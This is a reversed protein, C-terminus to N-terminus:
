RQMSSDAEKVNAKTMDTLPKISESSEEKVESAFEKLASKVEPNKEVLQKIAAKSSSDKPQSRKYLKPQIKEMSKGQTQQLGLAEYLSKTEHQKGVMVETHAYIEEDTVGNRKLIKASGDSSVSIKMQCKKGEVEWALDMDYTGDLIEYSRIEQEDEDYCTSLRVGRTKNKDSKCMTIADIGYEKSKSAELFDMLCIPDKGAIALRAVPFSRNEEDLFEELAAFKIKDSKINYLEEVVKRSVEGELLTNIHSKYDDGEGHSKGVKHKQFIKWSEEDPLGSVGSINLNAKDKIALQSQYFVGNEMYGFNVYPYSPNLANKEPLCNEKDINKSVGQGHTITSVLEKAKSKLNKLASLM